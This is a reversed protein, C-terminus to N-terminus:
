SGSSSCRGEGRWTATTGLSDGEAVGEGEEDLLLAEGAEEGAEQTITAEHTTTAEGQSAQAGAVVAAPYLSIFAARLVSAM